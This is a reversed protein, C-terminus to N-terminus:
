EPRPQVPKLVPLPLDDAWGLAVTQRASAPICRLFSRAWNTNASIRMRPSLAQLRSQNVGVPCYVRHTFRRSNSRSNLREALMFGNSGARGKTPSAPDKKYSHIGTAAHWLVISRLTVLRDSVGTFVAWRLSWVSGQPPELGGVPVLKLLCFGRDPASNPLNAM